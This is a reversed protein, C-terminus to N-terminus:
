LKGGQLSNISGKPTDLQQHESHNKSRFGFMMSKHQEVQSNYHSKDTIKIAKYPSQKNIEM